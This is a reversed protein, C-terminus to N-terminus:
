RSEQEAVESICLLTPLPWLLANAFFGLPYSWWPCGPPYKRVVAAGVAVGTVGYAIAAGIM